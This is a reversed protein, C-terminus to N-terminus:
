KGWLVGGHRGHGNGGCDILIQVGRQTFVAEERGRRLEACHGVDLAQLLVFGEVLLGDVVGLCEPGANGPIQM